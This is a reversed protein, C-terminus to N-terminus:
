KERLAVNLKMTEMFRDLAGFGRLDRTKGEHVYKCVGQNIGKYFIHM